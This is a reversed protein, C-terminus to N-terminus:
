LLHDEAQVLTGTAPIRDMAEAHFSRRGTDAQTLGRGERCMRRSVYRRHLGQPRAAQATGEATVLSAARMGRPRQRWHGREDVSLCFVRKTQRDVGSQRRWSVPFGRGETAPVCYITGDYFLRKDLYRSQVTPPYAYATTPLNSHSIYYLPALAGFVHSALDSPPSPRM